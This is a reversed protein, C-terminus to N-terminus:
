LKSWFIRSFELHFIRRRGTLAVPAGSLVVSETVL